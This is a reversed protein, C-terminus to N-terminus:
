SIKKPTALKSKRYGYLFYISLGLGMWCFFVVWSKAPIEILLYLCFLVGLMPIISFNKIFTLVSLMAAIVVFIVLLLQQSDERGFQQFATCIRGWFGWVFLAFLLPVIIKGNIYPLHFRGPEKPIRPLMLVGASVLVFAFLTGISTLDTV